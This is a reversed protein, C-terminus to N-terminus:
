LIWTATKLPSLKRYKQIWLNASLLTYSASNEEASSVMKWRQRSSSKKILNVTKLQNISIERFFASSFFLRLSFPNSYQSAGLWNHFLLIRPHNIFNKVHISGLSIFNCEFPWHFITHNLTSTFSPLASSQGSPVSKLLVGKHIQSFFYSLCFHSM